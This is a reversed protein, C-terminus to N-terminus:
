GQIMIKWSRELTRTKVRLYYPGAPLQDVKIEPLREFPNLKSQWIVQGLSNVLQWEQHDPSQYSTIVIRDRVPNPGISVAALQDPIGETDTLVTIFYTVLSDCGNQATYEIILNTDQEILIGAFYDGQSIELDVKQSAGGLADLHVFHISDYYTFNTLFQLLTDTEVELDNFLEGVCWGLQESTAVIPKRITHFVTNTIIPDNFDFYIGARNRIVEAPLLDAQPFIRYKVYGHSEPENSTSDPLLINAFTFILERQPTLVWTFPHSAGNVKLTSLDLNESLTDKIVVEYAVDNGTNQFRITYDLEWSQDIEHEPGLGTPIAAKDNPDYSNTANACFINSFPDGNNTPLQTILTGNMQDECNPVVASVETYLPHGETQDAVLRWGQGQIPYQMSLQAGPPLQYENVELM